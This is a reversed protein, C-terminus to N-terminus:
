CFIVFNCPAFLLHKLSHLLTRGLPVHFEQYLNVKNILGIIAAAVARNSPRILAGTRQKTQLFLNCRDILILGNHKALARLVDRLAHHAM